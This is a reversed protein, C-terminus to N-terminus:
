EYYKIRIVKKANDIEVSGLRALVSQGLLLPAKLNRVVTAHVNKLESDGFTVKRLNIVTGENVNGNADLFLSTGVVDDKSLYGNKLMFTAEVVSLSVDSAGTDLWFNLPLSNISCKVKCLDGEERTFPIESVRAKGSKKVSAAAGIVSNEAAIEKAAKDKYTKVLAKFDDRNRIADLDLDGDLHAFARYGKEFSLKLNELAKQPEGKRSYFCAANYANYREPVDKSHAAVSDQFAQAKDKQGLEVLAYQACGDSTYTTDIAVVKRYDEMAADKKGLLQRCYGRLLYAHALNPNQVITTNLDNVADDYKRMSAEIEAKEYYGDADGPKKEIYRNISTLAEQNRGLGSLIRAERVINDTDNVDMSMARRIYDLAKDYDGYESYCSSIQIMNAENADITDAALYMKIANLFDDNNQYVYGQIHSWVGNNKDSAQKIRLKALLVNMGDGKFDDLLNIAQGNNSLEVAKILDDSAEGYKKMQLYSDARNAYAADDNPDLTIAYSFLDLAKQFNKREAENRGKGKYGTGDGPYYKILENYDADALDYAKHQYYYEARDSLVNQDHPSAKLAAKWDDLALDDHNLQLNVSARLRYVTPLLDKDKKLLEVAKNINQLAYGEQDNNDYIAAMLFYAYGNKPHDKIEKQFCEMAGKEDPTDGNLLEYGRQLNYSSQMEKLSQAMMPMASLLLFLILLRRVSFQRM